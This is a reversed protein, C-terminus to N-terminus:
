FAYKERALFERMRRMFAGDIGDTNLTAFFTLYSTDVDSERIPVPVNRSAIITLAILVEYGCEWEEKQQPFYEPLFYNSLVKPFVGLSRLMGLVESCRADNLPYRSEYHFAENPVSRFWCVLSWHFNEAASGEYKLRASREAETHPGHLIVVVAEANDIKERTVGLLKYVNDSDVTDAGRMVRSLVAQLNISSIVVVKGDDEGDVSGSPRENRLILPVLEDIADSTMLRKPQNLVFNASRDVKKAVAPKPTSAKPKIPTDDESSSSSDDSDSSSDESDSETM